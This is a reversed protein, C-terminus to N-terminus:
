TAASPHQIWDSGDWYGLTGNGSPHPYWGAVALPVQPARGSPAAPPPTYGPAWGVVRQSVGSRARVILLIAAALLAFTAIGSFFMWWVFRQGSYGFVSYELSVKLSGTLRSYDALSLATALLNLALSSFALVLTPLWRGTICVVAAALTVVFAVLWLVLAAQQLGTWQSFDKLVKITEYDAKAQAAVAAWLTLGGILRGWNRM